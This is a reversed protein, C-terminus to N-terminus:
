LLNPILGFRMMELPNACALSVASSIPDLTLGLAGTM